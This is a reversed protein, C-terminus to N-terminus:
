NSTPSQQAHKIEFESDVKKKTIHEATSLSTFSNHTAGYELADQMHKESVHYNSFVADVLKKSNLTIAIKLWNIDQPSQQQEQALMSDVLAPVSVNNTTLSRFTSLIATEHQNLKLSM